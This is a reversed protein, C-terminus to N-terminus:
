SPYPFTLPWVNGPNVFTAHPTAGVSYNPAAGTPDNHVFVWKFGLNNRCDDLIRRAGSSFTGNYWDDELTGGTSNGNIPASASFTPAGTINVFPFDNLDKVIYNLSVWLPDNANNKAYIVGLNPSNQSSGVPNIKWIVKDNDDIVLILAGLISTLASGGNNLEGTSFYPSATLPTGTAALTHWWGTGHSNQHDKMQYVTWGLGFGNLFTKVVAWDTSTGLVVRCIPSFTATTVANGGADTATVTYPAISGAITAVANLTIVGTSADINKDSQVSGFSWTVTENATVSGLATTGSVVALKVNTTDIIPATYDKEVQPAAPAATRSKIKQCIVRNRGFGCSMLGEQNMNGAYKPTNRQTRTIRVRSPVKGSM